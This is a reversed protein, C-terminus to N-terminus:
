GESGAIRGLKELLEDSIKVASAAPGTAMARLAMHAYPAKPAPAVPRVAAAAFARGRPPLGYWAADRAGARRLPSQGGEGTRDASSGTRSRSGM